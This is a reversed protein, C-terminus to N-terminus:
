SHLINALVDGIINAMSAFGYDNPHTGDVTGNDSAFKILDRGDIFYVNKDGKSVANEFTQRIVKRREDPFDYSDHRSVMIIPLTPNYERIINFMKEHTNLLHEVTPANHDYDYVFVSMPLTKIYNAIEEEAWAHGSFGLNIFDCDLRRSIFSQYSNRPRSACGGQTISSGYFVVPTSHKYPSPPLLKCDEEVGIYLETVDSYLPFNITLERTKKTDFKIISDYGGDIDYPPVFSRVYKEGAETKEYMDFGASGTLAFHPMKGINEMKAAIAVYASDTVFRVRGGATNSHLIKM